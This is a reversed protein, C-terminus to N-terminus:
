IPLVWESVKFDTSLIKIMYGLLKYTKIKIAGQTAWGARYTLVHNSLQDKIKGNRNDDLCLTKTTPLGQYVDLGVYLENLLMRRTLEEQNVANGDSTNIFYSGNNILGLMKKSLLDKAKHAKINLSIVNSNKLLDSLESHEYDSDDKKNGSYLVRMGFSRAIKAVNGGIRGLGIIGITKDKLTEEFHLLTRIDIANEKKIMLIINLTTHDILDSDFIIFENISLLKFFDAIDTNSNKLVTVNANFGLILINALYDLNNGSSIIVIKKGGLLKPPIVEDLSRGNLDGYHKLSRGIKHFQHSFKGKRTNKENIYAKRYYTFLKLLVGFAFDQDTKAKQNTVKNRVILELLMNFELESVSETGYDDVCATYIGRENAKRVNLRHEYEHTWTLIAKPNINELVLDPIATWCTIICDADKIRNLLNQAPINERLAAEVYCYGTKLKEHIELSIGDFTEPLSSPWIIINADEPFIYNAPLEWEKKSQNYELPVREMKPNNVLEKLIAEHEPYFIVTDLVVIKNFKNNLM